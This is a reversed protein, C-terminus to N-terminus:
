QLDISSHLHSIIESLVKIKFEVALTKQLYCVTYVTWVTYLTCKRGTKASFHNNNSNIRSLGCRKAFDAFTCLQLAAIIENKAIM